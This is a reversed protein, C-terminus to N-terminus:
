SDYDQAKAPTMLEYFEIWSGETIERLKAGLERAEPISPNDDRGYPSDIIDATWQMYIRDKDGPLTGGNFYVTTESRQGAKEYLKGIDAAITAAKRAQRPKTEWVRTIVYM